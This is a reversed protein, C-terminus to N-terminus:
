DETVIMAEILDPATDLDMVAEVGLQSMTPHDRRRAALQTSAEKVSLILAEKAGIDRAGIPSVPVRAVAAAIIRVKVVEAEASITAVAVIDKTQTVDVTVRERKSRRLATPCSITREVILVSSRKEKRM